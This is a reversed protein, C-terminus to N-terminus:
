KTCKMREKQRQLRAIHAAALRYETAVDPNLEHSEIKKCADIAAQYDGEWFRLLIRVLDFTTTM